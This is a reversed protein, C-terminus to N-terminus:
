HVIEALLEPISSDGFTIDRQGHFEFYHSICYDQLNKTVSNEGIKM